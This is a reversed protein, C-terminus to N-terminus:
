LPLFLLLLLVSIDVHPQSHNLAICVTHTWFTFFYGGLFFHQAINKTLSLITYKRLIKGVHQWKIDVCVNVLNPRNIKVNLLIANIKRPTSM